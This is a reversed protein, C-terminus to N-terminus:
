EITAGLGRTIHDVFARVEEEGVPDSSVFVRAIFPGEVLVTALELDTEPIEERLVARQVIERIPRTREDIMAKKVVDLEPDRASASAMDLFLQRMGPTALFARLMSFLQNLDGVLTGTDPTPIREVQCDLSHILLENASGWHRYLTTKAVGSRRAVGDMTFGDIGCEAVLTQAADIAKQRAQESLPRPM